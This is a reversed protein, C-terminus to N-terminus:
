LYFAPRGRFNSIPGRNSSESLSARLSRRKAELEFQTQNPKNKPLCGPSNEDYKRTLCFSVNMKRVKIIPNTKPKFQTQIPKTKGDLWTDLKVYRTTNFSTVFMKENQSNAKNQLFLNIKRLQKAWMAAVFAGLCLLIEFIVTQPANQTLRYSITLHENNM